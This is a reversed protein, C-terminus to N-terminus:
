NRPALDLQEDTSDRNTAEHYVDAAPHLHRLENLKQALRQRRRGLSHRDPKVSFDNFHPHGAVDNSKKSIM